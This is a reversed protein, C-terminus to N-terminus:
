SHADASGYLRERNHIAAAALGADGLLEEAPCGLIECIAGLELLTIRRTGLEMRTLTLRSVRLLEAAEQQTMGLARRLARIRGGIRARTPDLRSM